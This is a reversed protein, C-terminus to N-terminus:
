LSDFVSQGLDVNDLPNGGVGTPFTPQVQNGLYGDEMRRRMFVNHMNPLGQAPHPRQFHSEVRVCHDLHNSNSGLVTNSNALNPALGSQEMPVEQKVMWNSFNSEEPRQGGQLGRGNTQFPNQQPNGRLWRNNGNQFQLPHRPESNIMLFHDHRGQTQGIDFQNGSANLSPPIMQHAVGHNAFSQHMLRKPPKLDAVNLTHTVPLNNNHVAVSPNSSLRHGLQNQLFLPPINFPSPYRNAFQASPLPATAARPLDAARKCYLRQKDIDDLTVLTERKKGESQKELSKNENILSEIQQKQQDIACRRRKKQQLDNPCGKQEAESKVAQNNRKGSFRASSREPTKAQNNRKASLRASSRKPTKAQYNRKASPCASSGEPTKAENNRKASLRASSREPTKGKQAGM